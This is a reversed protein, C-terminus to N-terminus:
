KKIGATYKFALVRMCAKQLVNVDLTKANVASVISKFASQYDSVILMDNGAVLSQVAVDNNDAYQSYNAKNLNDAICLGTFKLDDRVLKNVDPSLSAIRKQDIDPVLVNSMVICHVGQDVGAKFASFEKTRIDSLKRTDATIGYESNELNGCSPFFKLGASVSKSQSIEVAKKAYDSVTKSDDSLTRPYMSIANEDAINVVPALNLNIGISSLMTAKDTEMKTLADIGGSAFTDRPSYFDYEPFIDLDSVATVSGGEEEVSLIMSKSKYTALLAKVEDKTKGSFNDMTFLYGGLAYTEYDNKHTDDAKCVGILVQGALQETSMNKVETYAKEYNQSFIGGDNWEQPVSSAGNTTEQKEATTEAVTEDPTADGKTVDIYHYLSFGFLGACLVLIITSVIAFKKM